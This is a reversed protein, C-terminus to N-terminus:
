QKGYGTGDSLRLNDSLRLSDSLGVGRNLRNTFEVSVGPASTTSTVSPM